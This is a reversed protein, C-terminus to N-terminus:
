RWEDAEQPSGIFPLCFQEAQKRLTQRPEWCLFSQFTSQFTLLLFRELKPSGTLWPCASSFSLCPFPPSSASVSAASSTSAPLFHEGHGCNLQHLSPHLSPAAHAMFAPVLMFIAWFVTYTKTRSMMVTTLLNAPSDFQSWNPTPIYSHSIHM